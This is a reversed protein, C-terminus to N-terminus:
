ATRELEAVYDRIGKVAARAWKSNDPTDGLDITMALNYAQQSFAEIVGSRRRGGKIKELTDLLCGCKPPYIPDDDNQEEKVGKRREASWDVDLGVDSDTEFRQGRYSNGRILGAYLASELELAQVITAAEEKLWEAVAKRM